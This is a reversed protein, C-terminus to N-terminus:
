YMTGGNSAIHKLGVTKWSPACVDANQAENCSIGNAAHHSREDMFDFRSGM